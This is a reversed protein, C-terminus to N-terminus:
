IKDTYGMDQFFKFSKLFEIADHAPAFQYACFM